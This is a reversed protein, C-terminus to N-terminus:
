SASVGRRRPGRRRIPLMGSLIVTLHQEALEEATKDSLGFTWIPYAALRYFVGPDVDDRLQGASLAEAITDLWVGDLEVRMKELYAMRPISNLYTRDNMYIAAEAPHRKMHRFSALVLARLRDLPETNESRAAGYADLLETLSESLVADIIEERSGFHYYLSGALIGAAQGIDRVTTSAVGKAAFLQAAAQLIAARREAADAPGDAARSRGM